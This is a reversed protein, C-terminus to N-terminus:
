ALTLTGTFCKQGAISAYSVHQPNCLKLLAAIASKSYDYNVDSTVIEQLSALVDDWKESTDAASIQFALAQLDDCLNMFQASNLCFYTAMQPATTINNWFSPPLAGPNGPQRRNPTGNPSGTNCILNFASWQAYNVKALFDLQFLQQSAARFSEWNQTDQQQNAPPRNGTFESSSLRGYASQKLICVLSVNGSGNAAVFKQISQQAQTAQANSPIYGATDAIRKAQAADQSAALELYLDVDANSIAGASSSDATASFHISCRTTARKIKTDTEKGIDYMYRIGTDTVVVYSHQFYTNKQAAFFNFLHLTFTFSHSLQTDIGSGPQLTLGGINAAAVLDGQCLSHWSKNVLDASSLNVKYKFLNAASKNQDWEGALSVGKGVDTVWTAIKNNLSTQLDPIKDAIQENGLGGTIKDIAQLLAPTDVTVGPTNTISIQANIGAGVGTQSKDARMIYLFANQADIKQVIATFVDAHTYRVQATLGLDITGAPLTLEAAGKTVSQVVAAVSPAAFNIGPVGYSAAFSADLCGQFNVVALDNAKMELAASPEFPFILSAFAQLVANGLLTSGSVRHCFILSAQKSGKISGTIGVTGVNGTGGANGSIQFGLSIKLYVSGSYDTGPLQTTPQSKLDTAYTFVPGGSIIELKGEANGSLAFTIATATKWSAQESCNFTATLGKPLSQLATQLHPALTQSFQFVPKGAGQLLKRLQSNSELESIKVSLDAISTASSTTM